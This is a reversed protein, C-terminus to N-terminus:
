RLEAWAVGRLDGVQYGTAQDGPYRADLAARVEPAITAGHCTVCLPAIVLPEAYGVAGDPLRVAYSAGDLRDGRSRRAEFDSLAAAQWGAAANAPNRPKRTARGVTVGDHSLEAAIAPAEVSCMAIADPAGAELAATLRGVLRKKLGAIAEGGRARESTLDPRREGRECAALVVLVCPWAHRKM